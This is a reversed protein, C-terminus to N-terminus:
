LLLTSALLTVVTVTLCLLEGRRLRDGRWRLTLSWVVVAGLAVLAILLDRFM